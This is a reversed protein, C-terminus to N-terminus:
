SVSPDIFDSSAAVRSIFARGAMWFVSSPPPDGLGPSPSTSPGCQASSRRQMELVHTGKGWVCMHACVGCVCLRVFDFLCLCLGSYMQFSFAPYYHSNSITSCSCHIFSSLDYHLLLAGELLPLGSRPFACELGESHLLSTSAAAPVGPVQFSQFPSRLEAHAPAARPPDSDPTQSQFWREQIETRARDSLRQTNKPFKGLRESGPNRMIFHSCDDCRGTLNLHDLARFRVRHGNLSRAGGFRSMGRADHCRTESHYLTLAQSSSEM